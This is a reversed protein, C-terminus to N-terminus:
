VLRCFNIVLLSGKTCDCVVTALQLLADLLPWAKSYEESKVILGNLVFLQMLAFVVISMRCSHESLFEM